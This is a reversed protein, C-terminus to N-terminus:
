STPWPPSRRSRRPWTRPAARRNSPPPPPRVPPRAPRSPPPPSRGARGGATQAAALIADAGDLIARNAASLAGVDDDLQQLAAAIARNNQAEIEATAIVQELDRRLSAIQDLIGRVTDKIRGVSDSAERALSRVDNSVVAFGRGAEGARAAEVSGSVALMTTQVAVLGISDVIKEIRRGM